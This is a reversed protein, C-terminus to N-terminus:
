SALQNEKCFIDFLINSRTKGFSEFIRLLICFSNFLAQRDLHHIRYNNYNFYECINCNLEM